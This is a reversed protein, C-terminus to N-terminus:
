AIKKWQEPVHAIGLLGDISIDEDILPWHIGYGSPSIEFHALEAEAATSLRKSLDCLAKRLPKGDVDLYLTGNAIRVNAVTHYIGM